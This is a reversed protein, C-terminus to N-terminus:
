GMNKREKRLLVLQPSHKLFFICLYPNAVVTYFYLVCCKRELHVMSSIVGPSSFRCLKVLVLDNYIQFLLFIDNKTVM